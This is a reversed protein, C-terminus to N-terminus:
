KEEDFQNWDQPGRVPPMRMPNNSKLYSDLLGIPDTVPTQEIQLSDFLALADRDRSKWEIINEDMCVMIDDFSGEKQERRWKYYSGKLREAQKKSSCEMAHSGTERVKNIMALFAKNLESM